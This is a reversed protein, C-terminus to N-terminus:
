AVINQLFFDKTGIYIMMKESSYCKEKWENKRVVISGRRWMM